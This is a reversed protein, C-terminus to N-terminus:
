EREVVAAAGMGTGLQEGGVSGNSRPSSRPEARMRAAHTAPSWTGICMSIVGFKGNRRELEPLITAIQRAGTCGLPHGLAIAGAPPSLFFFFVHGPIRQSPVAAATRAAPAAHLPGGLPNVREPDLGLVKICYAAQSAFAENLEFVDVEDKKLGVQELVKPIAM